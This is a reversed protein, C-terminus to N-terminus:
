NKPADQLKSRLSNIEMLKEKILLSRSREEEPKSVNWSQIKTIEEQLLKIRSRLADAEKTMSHGNGSREQDSRPAPPAEPGVVNPGSDLRRRLRLAQLVTWRVSSPLLRLDGPWRLAPNGLRGLPGPIAGIDPAPRLEDLHSPELSFADMVFNRLGHHHRASLPTKRWERLHRELAMLELWRRRLRRSFVEAVWLFGSWILHAVWLLGEVILVRLLESRVLIWFLAVCLLSYYSFVNVSGLHLEPLVALLVTVVIVDLAIQAILRWPLWRVHQRLLRLRSGRSLASGPFSSRTPDAGLRRTAAKILDQIRPDRALRPRREIEALLRRLEDADTAV